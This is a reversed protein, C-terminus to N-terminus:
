PRGPERAKSEDSRYVWVVLEPSPGHDSRKFRVVQRICEGPPAAILRLHAICGTNAQLVECSLWNPLSDRNVEVKGRGAPIRVSRQQSSLDSASAGSFVVADVGNGTEPNCYHLTLPLRLTVTDQGVRLVLSCTAAFLGPKGPPDVTLTFLLRGMTGTAKGSAETGFEPSQDARLHVGPASTEWRDLKPLDTSLRGPYVVEIERRYPVDCPVKGEQIARPVVAFRTKGQWAVQLQAPGNPDDSIVTVIAIKRGPSVQIRLQLRATGGAPIEHPAETVLCACSTRVDIVHLPKAGPNQIQVEESVSGPDRVGLELVPQAFICRAFGHSPLFHWLLLGLLAALGTMGAGAALASRPQRGLWERFRKASDIVLLFLKWLPRSGRWFVPCLFCALIFLAIVSLGYIVTREISEPLSWQGAAPAAQDEDQGAFALLNGTWVGELAPNPLFYAPFPADLLWCGSPESRLVVLFHPTLPKTRDVVQLIAPMAVDDLGARTVRLGRPHLGLSKAAEALKALSHGGNRDEPGTAQQVRDWTVPLGRWRAVVYLSMPGCPAYDNLQLPPPIAASEEGRCLTVLLLLSTTM